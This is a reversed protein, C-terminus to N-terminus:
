WKVEVICLVDDKQAIVDIEAKQYYFNRVVITFGQKQLFRVALDEGHKGKNVSNM